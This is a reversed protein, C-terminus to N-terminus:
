ITTVTLANRDGTNFPSGQTVDQPYLELLEKMRQRQFFTHPSTNKFKKLTRDQLGV